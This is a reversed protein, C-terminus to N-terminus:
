ASDMNTLINWAQVEGNLESAYIEPAGALIGNFDNPYREAEVLAERGGDSCGDFYSYSPGHGYYAAIIAKAAIAVNHESSYAYSIRMAPDAAGWLADFANAGIHGENDTALALENGTVAPCNTSVAPPGPSVAGCYGGCGEQVYRGTWTSVPLRLDFQLQPPQEGKVECYSAGNITVTAASTVQTPAGPIQSFDMAQLQACNVVPTVTGAAHLARAVAVTGTGAARGPGSPSGALQFALMLLGAVAIITAFFVPHNAPRRMARRLSSPFGSVGSIILRLVPRVGTSLRTLM